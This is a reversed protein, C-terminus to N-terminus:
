SDCRLEIMLETKDQNYSLRYLGNYLLGEIDVDFDDEYHKFVKQYVYTCVYLLTAYMIQKDTKCEYVVANQLPYEIYVYITNVGDHVIKDLNYCPKPPETDDSQSSEWELWTKKLFKNYAKFNNLCDYPHYLGYPFLKRNQVLNGLPIPQHEIKTITTCIDM